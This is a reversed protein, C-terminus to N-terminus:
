YLKLIPLLLKAKNKNDGDDDDDDDEHLASICINRFCVMNRPFVTFVTIRYNSNVTCM